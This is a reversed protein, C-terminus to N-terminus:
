AEKRMISIAQTITWMWAALLFGTLGVGGWFDITEKKRIQMLM